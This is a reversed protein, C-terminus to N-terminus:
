TGRSPRRNASPATCAPGKRRKMSKPFHQEFNLTRLRRDAPRRTRHLVDHMLRTPVEKLDGTGGVRRKRNEGRDGFGGDIMAAGANPSSPQSSTSAPRRVTNLVVFGTIM